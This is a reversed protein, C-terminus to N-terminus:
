LSPTREPHFGHVLHVWQFWWLPPSEPLLTPSVKKPDPRSPTVRSALRCSLPASRSELSQVKRSGPASVPFPAVSQRQKCRSGRDSLTHVM